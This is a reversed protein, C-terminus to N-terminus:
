RVYDPYETHLLLYGALDEILWHESDEPTRADCVADGALCVRDVRIDGFDHRGGTLTIGPAVQGPFQSEVGNEDRPDAYLVGRIRDPPVSGDHAIEALVDGAVAAGQSYGLVVLESNPGMGDPLAFEVEQPDSSLNHVAIMRGEAGQVAHVLVADVGADILTLEGWGIEASARYRRILKEFFALLSDPDTRQDAANVHAPGFGDPTVPAVLRRARARSFGGNAGSNWQMPTRVALRGAQDLNEGM